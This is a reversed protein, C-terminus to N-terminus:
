TKGHGRYIRREKGLCLAYTHPLLMYTYKRPKTLVGKACSSSSSLVVDYENLDFNEFALPMLPFYKKHNIKDKNKKQLFSTHVDIDKLEDSLNNPTYFTTYIPAEPFCKHFNIICQEAGGMNTLWDHVIAVRMIIM